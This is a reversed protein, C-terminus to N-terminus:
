KVIKDILGDKIHVVRKAYSAVDPDHTIMIITKWSKNLKKFLKLLDKWTVSDLAWTPEDALLLSPDCALARAICVRQQEWWSLMDPTSNIKEGLWVEKLAEVARKYKRSFWWWKYALPLAVQHWASLRPLLNYWQFIFWIEDRRFTAQEDETFDAVNTWEFFYDWSTPIDLIWIMNMLTSKWSWSPWMIAIFWGGKVKLNIGKLVMMDKWWVLYSKKLNKIEIM